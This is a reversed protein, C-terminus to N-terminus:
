PVQSTAYRGMPEQAPGKAQRPHTRHRLTTEPYGSPLRRTAQPHRGTPWWMAQPYGRPPKFSKMM